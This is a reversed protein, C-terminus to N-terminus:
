ESWGCAALADRMHAPPPAVVSIAAKAESLAPLSLARAHLHLPVQPAPDPGYYADGLVPCGLAKAHVRIQHTRGTRPRCELWAMPQGALAGRGLVRWETVAPQGAPDVVIRWSQGRATVKLIPFDAVGAEAKPGGLVVTWYTKDVRHAMFLKGLRRIAKDHRGLLLCGSTDRDLRHALRPAQAWGFSLAPLYLELHDPANPGAHVPLGAPKDLVIVDQDRYLVRALLQDPTM